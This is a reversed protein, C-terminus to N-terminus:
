IAKEVEHPSPDSAVAASAPPTSGLMERIM